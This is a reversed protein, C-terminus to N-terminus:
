DKNSFHLADRYLSSKRALEFLGASTCNLFALDNIVKKENINNRYWFSKQELDNIRVMHIASSSEYNSVFETSFDADDIRLIFSLEQRLGALSMTTGMLEMNARKEESNHNLSEILKKIHENHYIKDPSVNNATLKKDDEDIGFCEELLERFVVKCLSYNDWQSDFDICDNMAELGGSPIFQLYNAKASVNESRRIRLADYSGNYNRVLVFVQVSLLSERYKGSVLVDSEDGCEKFKQHIAYRMPLKKLLEEGKMESINTNKAKKYYRYLEYELIHSTKINNEYTGTYASIWWKGEKNTHIEELMYGLRRPYRITSKILRYYKKVFKSHKKLIESYKPKCIDVKTELNQKDCIGSFPYNVTQMNLTISEYKQKIGDIELETFNIDWGQTRKKEILPGYIKELVKMQWKIFKPDILEKNYKSRKKSYYMKDIHSRVNLLNKVFSKIKEIDDWLNLILFVFFVISTVTGAISPFYTQILAALDNMKHNEKSDGVFNATIM